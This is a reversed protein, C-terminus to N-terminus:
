INDSILKDLINFVKKVNFEKYWFQKANSESDHVWKADYENHTFSIFIKNFDLINDIIHTLCFPGSARGIIIDCKTSLYSIELLNGVDYGIIDKIMIVNDNSIFTENTILFNIFKYKNTLEKIIEDFNFNVSQGSLVINNCVLVTKVKKNLFFNDINKNNTKSFNVKPIYYSIDELKINLKKYIDSFMRYNSILSCSTNAIYRMNQQGIWTNIYIDKEVNFISLNNNPMKEGPIKIIQEIQEIEFDKLINGRVHVYFHKNGIKRSIDRVFERSYHMDGNQAGNYFFIKM